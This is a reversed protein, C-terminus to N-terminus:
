PESESFVRSEWYGPKRHGHAIALLIIKEGRIIYPIYYPFIPCNIRRYGGDREQRLWPNEAIRDIVYAIENRFRKGLGVEKSEYWLAAVLFEQRAEELFEITM